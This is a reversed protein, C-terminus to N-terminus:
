RAPRAEMARGSRPRPRPARARGASRPGRAPWSAGAHDRSRGAPPARAADGIGLDERAPRPGSWRTHQDLDIPAGGRIREVPEGRGHGVAIRHRRELHRLGHAVRRLGGARDPAVQEVDIQRRAEAGGLERHIVGNINRSASGRRRPRARQAVREHSRRTSTPAARERRRGVAGGPGSTISTSSANQGHFVPRKRMASPTLPASPASAGSRDIPM